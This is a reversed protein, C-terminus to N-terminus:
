KKRGVFTSLMMMVTLCIVYAEWYRMHGFGTLNVIIRNWIALVPVCWWISRFLSLVFIRYILIFLEAIETLIDNTPIDNKKNDM